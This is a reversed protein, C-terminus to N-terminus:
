CIEWDEEQNQELEKLDVWSKSNGMIPSSHLIDDNNVKESPPVTENSSIYCNENIHNQEKHNKELINNNLRECNLQSLDFKIDNDVCLKNNNDENNETRIISITEKDEDNNNNSSISLKEISIPNSNYLCKIDTPSSSIQIIKEDEGEESHQRTAHSIEGKINDNDHDDNSTKEEMVEEKNLNTVPPATTSSQAVFCEDEEQDTEPAQLTQETVINLENISDVIPINSEIATSSFSTSTDNTTFKTEKTVAKARQNAIEATEEMELRRKAVEEEEMYFEAEADNIDKVWFDAVDSLTNWGHSVTCTLANWGAGVVRGGVKHEVWKNKVTNFGSGMAGAVIKAGDIATTGLQVLDEPEFFKPSEDEEDEDAGREGEDEDLEKSQSADEKTRV